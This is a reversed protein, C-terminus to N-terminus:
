QPRCLLKPTSSPPQLTSFGYAILFTAPTLMKPSDSNIIFPLRRTQHLFMPAKCLATHFGTQHLGRSPASQRVFVLMFVFRKTQRPCRSSLDQAVFLPMLILRTQHHATYHHTKHPLSQWSSTDQRIFLPILVVRGKQDLTAHRVTVHLCTNKNSSSWRSPLDGQRVSLSCSPLAQGSGVKQPESSFATPMPTAM